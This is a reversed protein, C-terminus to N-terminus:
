ILKSVDPPNKAQEVVRLILRRELDDIAGDQLLRETLWNWHATDLQGDGRVMYGSLAEIFLDEFSGPYETGSLINNLDLLLRAEDDGFGYAAFMSKLLAVEAESISGDDYIHAKLDKLEQRM